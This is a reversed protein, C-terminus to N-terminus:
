SIDIIGDTDDGTQSSRLKEMYKNQYSEIAMRLQNCLYHNGLRYAISLKKNLENVKALLEDTSLDDLNPLLPHEM